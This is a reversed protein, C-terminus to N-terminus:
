QFKTSMEMVMDFAMDTIYDAFQTAGRWFMLHKGVGKNHPALNSLAKRLVSEFLRVTTIRSDKELNVNIAKEGLLPTIDKYYVAFKNSLARSKASRDSAESGFETTVADDFLKKAVRDEGDEVIVLCPAAPKLPAAPVSSVAVTNKVVTVKQTFPTVPTARMCPMSAAVYSVAEDETLARVSSHNCTPCGVREEMVYGRGYYKAVREATRDRNPLEDLPLMSFVGRKVEDFVGVPAQIRRIEAPTVFCRCISIDFGSVIQLPTLLTCDVMPHVGIVQVKHGNEAHVYTDVQWIKYSCKTPKKFCEFYVPDAGARKKDMFLSCKELVRTFSNMALRNYTDAALFNPKLCPIWIDLDSKANFKPEKNTQAAQALPLCAGGAFFANTIRMIELLDPYYPMVGHAGMMTYANSAIDLSSLSSASM